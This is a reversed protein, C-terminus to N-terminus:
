RKFDDYIATFDIGVIQSKKGKYRNKLTDEADELKKSKIGNEISLYAEVYASLNDIAKILEGDRPNFKDKNYLKQIEDSSKEQNKGEITVISKFESETFMKIQHHWDPPLLKYVEEKMRRKEYVKIMDELGEISRKVPSIIDRTLVEPLDHFLGTFYNNLCRKKCANIELSFLYALMAVILMHGLVSTRPVMHLNSWRVQFRLQGCLDVFNRLNAHLVLQKLGTLDYHKELEKELEKRIQPIEYGEPNAREIINFEWKTAYFHAANLIKKPLTEKSDLFYSKFRNFFEKGLPSVTNELKKFVWENLRKYKTEDKKIERFIQPKLDTLILRQFFEFIGGEVIDIWNFDREREEIKGIVYAIVMKHAQKDLERLEVPRIKDNWRQMSASDYITELLAKKIM